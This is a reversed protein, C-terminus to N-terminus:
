NSRTPKVLNQYGECFPASFFEASVNVDKLDPNDESSGTDAFTILDSRISHEYMGILMAM